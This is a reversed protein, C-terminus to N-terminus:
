FDVPKTFGCRDLQMTVLGPFDPIPFQFKDPTRQTM